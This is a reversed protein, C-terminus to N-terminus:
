QLARLSFYYSEHPAMCALEHPATDSHVSSSCYWLQRILAGQCQARRVGPELTHGFHLGFVVFQFVHLVVAFLTTARHHMRRRLDNSRQSPVQSVTLLM